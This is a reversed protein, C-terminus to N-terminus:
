IPLKPARGRLAVAIVFIAGFLVAAFGLLVAGVAVLLRLAGERGRRGEDILVDYLRRGSLMLALAIGAAVGFLAPIPM